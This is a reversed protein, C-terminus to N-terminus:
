SELWEKTIRENVMKLTCVMAIDVGYEELGAYDNWMSGLLLGPGDNIFLVKLPIGETEAYENIMTIKDRNGSTRDDEQAGGRDSDYRAFGVVLPVSDAKRYIIFDAPAPYTFNELEQSLILDKGARRPGKIDYEEGFTGEFWTFFTDTLEYGKQGRDKYEYLLAMIAPDPNNRPYLNAKVLELDRFRDGFELIISPIKKKVKLMEVSTDPSVYKRFVRLLQTRNPGKEASINELLEQSNASSHVLDYFRVLIDKYMMEAMQIYDPYFESDVFTIYKEAGIKYDKFKKM